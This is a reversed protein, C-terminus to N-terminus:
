FRPFHSLLSTLVGGERGGRGGRGEGGRGKGGGGGVEFFFLLNARLSVPDKTKRLVGIVSTNRGLIFTHICSSFMIGLMATDYGLAIVVSRTSLPEGM